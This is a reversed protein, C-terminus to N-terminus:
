SKKGKEKKQDRKWIRFAVMECYFCQEEGDPIITECVKCKAPGKKKEEPIPAAWLGFVWTVAHFMVFAFVLLLFLQQM